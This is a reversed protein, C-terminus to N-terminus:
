AKRENCMPFVNSVIGRPTKGCSSWRLQARVLSVHGFGPAPFANQDALILRIVQSHISQSKDYIHLANSYSTWAATTRDGLFRRFRRRLSRNWSQPRPGRGNWPRTQLEEAATTHRPTPNIRWPRDKKLLYILNRYILIEINAIINAIEKIRKKGIQAGHEREKGSKNNTGLMKHQWRPTAEGHGPAGNWWMGVALRMNSSNGFHFSWSWLWATLLTTKKHDATKWPSSFVRVESSPQLNTLSQMVSVTSLSESKNSETSDESPSTVWLWMSAYGYLKECGLWISVHVIRSRHSTASRRQQCMVWLGRGLWSEWFSSRCVQSFRVSTASAPQSLLHFTTFANTNSSNLVHNQM